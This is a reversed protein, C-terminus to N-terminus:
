QKELTWEVNVFTDIPFGANLGHLYYRGELIMKNRRFTTIDLPTGHSNFVLSTDNIVLQEKDEDLEYTGTSSGVVDAGEFVYLEQSGDAYFTTRVMVSDLWNEWVDFNGAEITVVEWTGELRRQSVKNCSTAFILAFLLLIVLQKM